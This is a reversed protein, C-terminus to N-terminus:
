LTSPLAEGRAGGSLFSLTLSFTTQGGSYFIIIIYISLSLPENINDVLEVVLGHVILADRDSKVKEFILIRFTSPAAHSLYSINVIFTADAAVAPVIVVEFV